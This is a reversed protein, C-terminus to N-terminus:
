ATRRSWSHGASAVLLKKMETVPVVSSILLTSAVKAPSSPRAPIRVGGPRGRGRTWSRRWEIATAVSLHVQLPPLEAALLPDELALDLPTLAAVGQEVSLESLQLLPRTSKVALLGLRDIQLLRPQTLFERNQAV